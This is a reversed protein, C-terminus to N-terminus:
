APFGPDNGTVGKEQAGSNKGSVVLRLPGLSFLQLQLRYQCKGRTLCRSFPRSARFGPQSPGISPIKNEYIKRPKMELVPFPFFFLVISPYFFSLLLKRLNWSELLHSNLEVDFIIAQKRFIM